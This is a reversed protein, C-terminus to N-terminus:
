AALAEALGDFLPPRRHRGDASRGPGRSAADPRARAPEPQSIGAIARASGNRNAEACRRRGAPTASPSGARAKWGTWRRTTPSTTATAMRWPRRPVIQGSSTTAPSSPTPASSGCTATRRCSACRRRQAAARRAAPRSRDPDPLRQLRRARLRRADAHAKCRACSRRSRRWPAAACITAMPSAAPCSSWTSRGAPRHGQALHDRSEGAM